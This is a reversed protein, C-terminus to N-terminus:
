FHLTQIEWVFLYSILINLVQILSSLSYFFFCLPILKLDELSAPLRKYLDTNNKSKLRKKKEETEKEKGTMPEQVDTVHTTRIKELGRSYFYGAYSTPIAILLGLFILKDKNASLEEAASIIMPSPYVLNFLVVAGLALSIATSISPNDLKSALERAIPIFIVYTLIYCM